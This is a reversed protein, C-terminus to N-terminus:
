PLRVVQAAYLLGAGFGMLLALGGSTGPARSLMRDLALPVSAASTNGTDEIDRAVAVTSPLDLTSVLADTIRMNAQHPVFAALDAARVGAADLAQGAVRGMETVAWRFVARGEFELYPWPTDPEERLQPWHVPQVIASRRASDSGWIAPGIAPTDGPGIVVAGAGDGFLFAADRDAPDVVDTMRDAGVVLIYRASGAAVMNRALNVAYCFGACAANLDFAAAVNAGTGLLEAIETAAAPAQVMHTMTAAIVCDIDRPAVGAAALAKTAAAHGMVAVTEDVAAVRRERIGSRRVIWEETADIRGCIERNPVVREPLYGGIGVIRAHAGAANM